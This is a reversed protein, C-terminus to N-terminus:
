TAFKQHAHNSFLCLFAHNCEFHTVMKVHSENNSEASVALIGRYVRTQIEANNVSQQDGKGEFVSVELQVSFDAYNSLIRLRRFLSAVARYTSMKGEVYLSLLTSLLHAQTQVPASYYSYHRAMSTDIEM